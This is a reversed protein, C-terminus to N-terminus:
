RDAVTLVLGSLDISAVDAFHLNKLYVLSAARRLPSPADQVLIPRKPLANMYYVTSGEVESPADFSYLGISAERLPFTPDGGTLCYERSLIGETVPPASALFADADSVAPYDEFVSRPWAAYAGTFVGIHGDADLAFWRALTGELDVRTTM